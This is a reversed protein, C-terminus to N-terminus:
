WLWAQHPRGHVRWDRVIGIVPFILAVLGAIEFAYPPLFPMPLLRGFGPGMLMVFAGVQLRTHWDKRHRLLMAAGFLTVFGILTMPNAILFHQPQFFFPTRGTQVTAITVWPGLIMLLAVWAISYVGLKRHLALNGNAALWTQGLTIAIWTMFAIGHLHIIIPSNFSSRGMALQVVFGAVLIVAMITILNRIFKRDDAVPFDLTAGTM